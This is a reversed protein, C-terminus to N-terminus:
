YGYGKTEIGVLRGNEFRLYYMWKSPGFNYLWEEVVIYVKRTAGGPIIDVTEEIHKDRWLPEGCKLFVEASTDGESVLENGCYFPYAILPPTFLSSLLVIIALSNKM